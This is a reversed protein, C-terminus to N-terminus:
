REGALILEGSSRWHDGLVDLADDVAKSAARGTRAALDLRADLEQAADPLVIGAALPAAVVTMSARYEGLVGGLVADATALAVAHTQLADLGAAATASLVGAAEAAASGGAGSWVESTLSDAGLAGLAGSVELRAATLRAADRSFAALDFSQVSAHPALVEDADFTVAGRDRWLHLLELFDDILTM